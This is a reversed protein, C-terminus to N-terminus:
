EEHRLNEDKIYNKEAKKGLMNWFHIPAVGKGPRKITINNESFSDGKQISCAAVISKRAIDRNKLESPTPTKRGTGMALEVQRVAQIMTKLDQPELSAKHDPGPLTKDLTFHKELIVAGRAAAAIPIAIGDTHDSYGVPLLFAQRLTDMALLNVERLPAPYETTCHLLKVRELLLQQGRTSSYAQELTEDTPYTSSELYGYALVKLAIEIEGLTSMGTSLIIPKETRAVQLLFPANTIDGSSIKIYPLDFVKNLLDLSEKDFPTSLFQIGVKKCHVVLAEHMSCNLELRKLMQYQSEQPDNQFQYDAKPAEQCTLNDTVYTQFKVADAGALAAVEILQKALDLSGNHNVGAEAIIYVGHKKM